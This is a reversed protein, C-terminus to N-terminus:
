APFPKATTPILSIPKKAFQSLPAGFSVGGGFGFQLFQEAILTKM